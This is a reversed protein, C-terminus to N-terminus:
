TWTHEARITVDREAHLRRRAPEAPFEVLDDILALFRGDIADHRMAEPAVILNNLMRSIVGRQVHWEAEDEPTWAIDSLYTM